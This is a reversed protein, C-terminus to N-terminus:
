GMCAFDRHRNSLEAIQPNKMDTSVLEATLELKRFQRCEPEFVRATITPQAFLFSISEVM